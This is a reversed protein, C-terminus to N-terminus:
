FVAAWPLFIGGLTGSSLGDTISSVTTEEDVDAAGGKAEAAENGDDDDARVYVYM